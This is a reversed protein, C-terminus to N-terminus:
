EFNGANAPLGGIKEKTIKIIGGPTYDAIGVTDADTASKTQGFSFFRFFNLLLQPFNKRRFFAAIKAVSDYQETPFNTSGAIRFACVTFKSRIAVFNVGGLLPILGEGDAYITSLSPIIKGLLFGM